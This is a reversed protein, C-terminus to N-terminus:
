PRHPRVHRPDRKTRLRELQEILDERVETLATALEPATSNAVLPEARAIWCELTVKQEARGRNKVSLRLEASGPPYSRLRKGLPALRELAKSREDEAFGTGITLREDLLEPGEDDADAM